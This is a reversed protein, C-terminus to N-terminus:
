CAGGAPCAVPVCVRCGLLSSAVSAPLSNSPAYERRTIYNRTATATTVGGAIVNMYTFPKYLRRRPLKRALIAQALLLGGAAASKVLVAKRMRFEGNPGRLLPNAEHGGRSSHADLVHAATLAVATLIWKKKWHKPSAAYSPRANGLACLLLMTLAAAGSIRKGM